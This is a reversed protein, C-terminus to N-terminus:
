RLVPPTATVSASKTDNSPHYVSLQSGDSFRFSHRHGDAAVGDSAPNHEKVTDVLADFATQGEEADQFTFQCYYFFGGKMVASKRLVCEEAGPLLLTAVTEGSSNTSGRISSSDGQEVLELLRTVMTSLDAAGDVSGRKRVPRRSPLAEPSDTLESRRRGGYLAASEACAQEFAYRYRLMGAKVADERQPKTGHPDSDSADIQEDGKEFFTVISQSVANMRDPSLLNSKAIYWGAMFDAQLERGTGPLRTGQESQVIHTFEHALIATITYNTPGRTNAFEDRMLRYGFVVTATTGPLVGCPFATANAGNADNVMFFGPKVGYATSISALQSNVFQDLRM